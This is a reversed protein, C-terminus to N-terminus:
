CDMMARQKAVASGNVRKKRWAINCMNCQAQKVDCNLSKDHTTKCNM